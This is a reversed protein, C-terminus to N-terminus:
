EFTLYLEEARKKGQELEDISLEKVILDRTKKHEEDGDLSALYCWVYAETYDCMVGEGNFYM